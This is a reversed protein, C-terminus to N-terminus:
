KRQESIEHIKKLEFSFTTGKDIESEVKISAGHAEIIHKVISLGLGTGSKVRSRANQTRYFREFIRHNSEKNIGVGTDSVSFLVMSEKNEINISILGEDTYRIANSILNNFVQHIRDPDAEVFTHNSLNNNIRIEINDNDNRLNADRVLEEIIPFIDTQSINMTLEGTEIRSIDVLDTVLAELRRTNKLSRKLFSRNVKEDELAGSLLTEIYGSISAIPTKLEHTVNILFESRVESMKIIKAIDTGLTDAMDNISRSLDAIEDVGKVNSRISWDGTKIKEAVKAIRRIPSTVWRDVLITFFILVISVLFIIRYQYSQRLSILSGAFDLTQAVRIYFIPSFDAKIAVYIFDKNLTSSYRTAVGFAEKKAMQIEPRDLHNDMQSVQFENLGSEGLVLGDQSILTIRLGTVSSYQSAKDTFSLTSNQSLYLSFARGHSLLTNTIEEKVERDISRNIFLTPSLLGISLLVFLALFLKQRIKLM